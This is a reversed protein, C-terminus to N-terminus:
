RFVPSDASAPREAMSEHVVGDQNVYFTRRGDLMYTTPSALLAYGARTGVLAFQYRDSESSALGLEGLSAAYKGSQAKHKAQARVALQMERVVKAEAASVGLHGSRLAPAAVAVITGAIVAVVAMEILSFGAQRNRM